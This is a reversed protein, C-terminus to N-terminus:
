RYMGSAAFAVGRGSTTKMWPDPHRESNPFSGFVPCIKSKLPWETIGSASPPRATVITTSFGVTL